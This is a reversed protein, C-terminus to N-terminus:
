RLEITTEQDAKWGATTKVWMTAHPEAAYTNVITEGRKTQVVAHSVVYYTDPTQGAHWDLKSNDRLVSLTLDAAEPRPEITPNKEVYAPTAWQALATARRQPSVVLNAEEFQWVVDPSPRDTSAVSPEVAASQATTPTTVDPATQSPASALKTVILVVLSLLIVSGIIPGIRIKRPKVNEM